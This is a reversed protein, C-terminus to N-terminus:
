VRNATEMFKDYDRIYDNEDYYNSALVLIICDDSFELMERWIVKNVLLGQNPKNLIYKHKEKGNDLIVNCSGSVCILIQQLDRHAHFGRALNQKNGYIYYVRKIEFPINKFQELAVLAGRDDEIAFFDILVDKM